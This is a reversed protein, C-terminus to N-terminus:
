ASPTEVEIQEAVDVVELARFMAEKTLTAAGWVEVDDVGDRGGRACAPPRPDTRPARSRRSRRSGAFDEVVDSFFIENSGNKVESIAFCSSSANGNSPEPPVHVGEFVLHLEVVHKRAVLGGPFDPLLTSLAPVVSSQVVASSGARQSRRAESGTRRVRTREPGPERGPKAMPGAQRGTGECASLGGPSPLANTKM